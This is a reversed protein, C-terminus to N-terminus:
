LWFESGEMDWIRSRLKQTDWMIDPMDLKMDEDVLFDDENIENDLDKHIANIIRRLEAGKPKEGIGALM